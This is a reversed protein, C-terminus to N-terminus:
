EGYELQIKKLLDFKNNFILVTAICLRRMAEGGIVNIHLKCTLEPESVLGQM